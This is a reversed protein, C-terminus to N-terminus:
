ILNHSKQNRRKPDRSEYKFRIQEYEKLKEKRDQLANYREYLQISCSMGIDSRARGRSRSSRRTASHHRGRKDMPNLNPEFTCEPDFEGADRKREIDGM